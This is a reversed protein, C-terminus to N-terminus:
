TRCPGGILLHDAAAPHRSLAGPDRKIRDILIQDDVLLTTAIRNIVEVSLLSTKQQDEPLDSLPLIDVRDVWAKYLASGCPLRM